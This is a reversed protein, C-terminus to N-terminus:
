AANPEVLVKVAGATRDGLVAFADAVRDLGFRHPDSPPDVLGATCSSWGDGRLAPLPSCV